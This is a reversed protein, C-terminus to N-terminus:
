KIFVYFMFYLLIFCLISHLVRAILYSKYKIGSGEIISKTQFHVCLGNFSLIMGILATKLRLNINLKSINTIGVTIELISELIKTFVTNPLLLDIMSIIILFFIIVGLMNLLISFSERVVIILNNIFSEKNTSQNTERLDSSNGKNKFLIGIILGSILHVCFIIIGIKKNNLLTEGIFSIVFIPNSYSTFTILHNADEITIKKKDLLDKIYKSGTPFGTVMSLIVIVSSEKPLNFVKYIFVKFIENIKNIINYKILLSVLILSPLISPILSNLWINEAYIVAEKTDKSYMFIFIFMSLLLITILINILNNKM